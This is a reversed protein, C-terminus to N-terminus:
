RSLGGDFRDIIASGSTKEQIARIRFKEWTADDLTLNVRVKMKAGGTILIRMYMYGRKKKEPKIQPAELQAKQIDGLIALEAKKAAELAIDCPSKKEEEM